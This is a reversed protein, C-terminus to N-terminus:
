RKGLPLRKQRDVIKGNVITLIENGDESLVVERNDIPKEPPMYKRSEADQNKDLHGEARSETSRKSVGSHNPNIVSGVGLTDRANEATIVTRDAM